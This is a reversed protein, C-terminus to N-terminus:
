SLRRLETPLTFTMMFYEVVVLKTMQRELVNPPTLISDNNIMREVKKVPLMEPIAKLSPMLITKPINSTQTTLLCILSSPSVRVATAYSDITRDAKGQARLANIHQQYLSDLRTQQVKNM